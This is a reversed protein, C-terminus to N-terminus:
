IFFIELYKNEQAIPLIKKPSLLSNSYALTVSIDKSSGNLNRVSSNIWSVFHAQTDMVDPKILRLFVTIQSQQMELTDESIM